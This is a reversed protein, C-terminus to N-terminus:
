TCGDDHWTQLARAETDQADPLQDSFNKKDDDSRALAILQNLTLVADHLDSWWGAARACESAHGGDDEDDEEKEEPTRGSNDPVDGGDAIANAAANDGLLTGYLRRM